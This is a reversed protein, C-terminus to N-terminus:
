KMIIPLEKVLEFYVLAKDKKLTEEDNYKHKLLPNIKDQDNEEKIKKLYLRKGQYKEDVFIYAAYPNAQLNLYNLKKLMILAVTKEDIIFPKAYLAVDVVGKDDATALVGVGKLDEFYQKLEM